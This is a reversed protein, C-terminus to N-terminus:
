PLLAPDLYDIMNELLGVRGPASPYTSTVVNWIPGFWIHRGSGYARSTSTVNNYNTGFYYLGGTQTTGSYLPAYMNGSYGGSVLIRDINGAPGAGFQTRRQGYYDIFAVGANFFAGYPYSSPNPSGILYRGFTLYNGSTANRYGPFMSILYGGQSVYSICYGAQSSSMQNYCYDNARGAWFVIDYNPLTGSTLQSSTLVTVSAPAYGLTVLDGSLRNAAATNYHNVVLISFPSIVEFGPYVVYDYQIPGGGLDEIRGCPRTMIT